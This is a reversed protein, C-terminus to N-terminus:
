DYIGELFWADGQEYIRCLQGGALQVDWERRSWAQGAWWDGSSLMPGYAATVRDSAAAARL